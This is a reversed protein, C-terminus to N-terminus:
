DPAVGRIHRLEVLPDQGGDPRADVAVLDVRWPLRPMPRGDPLCGRRLLAFAARYTRAIKAADLTEEPAGFRSSSRSRVEVFVLTPPLGPEVCILDLEDRGIRVGAALVTWGSGALREAVLCEAGDGLRRRLTTAPAAPAAPALPEPRKPM